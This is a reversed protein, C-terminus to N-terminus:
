QRRAWEDPTRTTLAMAHIAGSSLENAFIAYVMRQRDVRSQGEFKASVVTVSMHTGGSGSHGAHGAHKHSDDTVAVHTPELAARLRSEIDAVRDMRRAYCM